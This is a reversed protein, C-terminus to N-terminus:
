TGKDGWKLGPKGDESCRNVPMARSRRGQNWCAVSSLFTM